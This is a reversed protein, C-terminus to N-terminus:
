PCQVFPGSTTCIGRPGILNPGARLLRTGDSAWCGTADCANLTVPPATARPPSPTPATAPRAPAPLRPQAASPTVVVPAPAARQPASAASDAVGLCASAAQRRATEVAARAAANGREQAAASERVDLTDLARRCAPSDLPSGSQAFAPAAATALSLVAILGMRHM